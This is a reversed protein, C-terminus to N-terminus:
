NQKTLCTKSSVNDSGPNSGSPPVDMTISCLLTDSLASIKWKYVCSNVSCVAWWDTHTQTPGDAPIHLVPFLTLKTNVKNGGNPQHQKELIPCLWIKKVGASSFVEQTYVQRNNRFFERFCKEFGSVNEFYIWHTVPPSATGKSGDEGDKRNRERKRRRGDREKLQKM